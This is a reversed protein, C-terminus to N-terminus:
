FSGPFKFFIHESVIRQIIEKQRNRISLFYQATFKVITQKKCRRDEIRMLLFHTNLNCVM